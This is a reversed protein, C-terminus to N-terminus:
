NFIHLNLIFVSSEVIFPLMFNETHMASPESVNKTTGHHLYVTVFSVIQVM